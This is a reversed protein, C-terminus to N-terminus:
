SLGESGKKEKTLKAAYDASAKKLLEMLNAVVDMMDAMSIRDHQYADNFRGVEVELLDVMKSRTAYIWDTRYNKVFEGNDIAEKIELRKLKGYQIKINNDTRIKHLVNALFQIQEDTLTM